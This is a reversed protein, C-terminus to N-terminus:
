ATSAGDEEYTGLPFWVQFTTGQGPKSHLEIQGSHLDVIEKVIALGLGTGPIDTQLPHQGRYFRDFLHIKDTPQIGVGTDEVHLCVKDGDASLYTKVLIEGAPTYKISNTVLNTVVQALQNQEGWIMPLDAGPMFRLKLGTEQTQVQYASVVSEVVNNLSFLTFVLRERGMELRSLDLIDEILQRLRETQQQLVYRYRDANEPNGRTLLDLYLQLNHVPTRLEHSVDSVFKSKLRDLAQLQENAIALEQTRERVHQELKTTQEVLQEHLTARHVANAVMDAIATLLKVEDSTILTNRGAWLAGIAKQQVVLPVCAIGQPLGSILSVAPLRQPPMHVVTQNTIIVYGLISSQDDPIYQGSLAAVSGIALEVVIAKEDARYFALAAGNAQLLTQVQELVIPFMDTRTQAKRLAAAVTLIAEREQERQMRATIDKGTHVFHIQADRSDRLPTITKEEYYREGNKKCNIVSGRFHQEPENTQWADLFQQEDPGGLQLDSLTAGLAEAQTYGTLAAFAPNIYELRGHRDTIYVLDATQEIASALKRVEQANRLRELAAALQGAVTSLFREDEASFANLQPSEVNLVGLLRTELKIPVCLESLVDPDGIVYVPEERVDATRKSRGTQAVYGIIGWGPTVEQYTVGRRERYSPHVRLCNKVEDWLLVGVTHPYFTTSLMETTQQILVDEHVEEVGVNAIAHLIKLEDLQRQSAEYLHANRIVIAVQDAFAQLVRADVDSFYHPLKGDVALMGIVEDQIILPVGLWSRIHAHPFRTFGLYAAPADHLIYPDRQQIVISNPNDGPILFRLGIVVEPDSWGRGGVIELYNGKLLQVSASDYPVVRELQLLIRDIAEESSLTSAVIAGAQHLTEAEHARRRAEELLRTHELAEATQHAILSLVRTETLTFLRKDSTHTCLVGIIGDRGQMPVILPAYQNTNSEPAQMPQGTQFVYGEPSSAIPVAFRGNGQSTSIPSEVSVLYADSADPLMFVVSTVQLLRQIVWTTERIVSLTDTLGLLIQSLELLTEQEEMRQAQVQEHLHSMRIAAAVQSAFISCVQIDGTQLTKGWITMMGLVHKEVALPLYIIPMDPTIDMADLLNELMDGSIAPLIARVLDNPSTVYASQQMTMIDDFLPFNEHTIQFGVMSLGTLTEVKNLQEPYLSHYRILLNRTPLDFLSIVCFIGQQRLQEGLTTLICDPDLTSKIQAAVQGLATVLEHAHGLEAVRAAVQDEITAEITTLERKATTLETQLLYIQRQAMDLQQQLEGQRM